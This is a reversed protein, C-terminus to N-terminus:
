QVFVCVASSFTWGTGPQAPTGVAAAAQFGVQANVPLGRPVPIARTELGDYCFRTGNPTSVAGGMLGILPPALVLNNWIGQVPLCLIAMPAMVVVYPAGLPARVTFTLQDPSRTNIAYPNCSFGWCSDGGSGISSQVTFGMDGFVIQASARPSSLAAIAAVAIIWSRVRM